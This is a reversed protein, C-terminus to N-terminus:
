SVLVSRIKEFWVLINLGIAGFFRVDWSENLNIQSIPYITDFVPNLLKERILHYNKNRYMESMNIRVSWKKLDSETLILNIQSKKM